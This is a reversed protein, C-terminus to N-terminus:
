EKSDYLAAGYGEGFGSGYLMASVGSGDRLEIGPWNEGYAEGDGCGGGCGNPQGVPRGHGGRGPKDFNCGIGRDNGGNGSLRAAREFLRRREDHPEDRHEMFRCSSLREFRGRTMATPEAPCCRVFANVGKRCAGSRVLDDVTVSEIVRVFEPLQDAPTYQTTM